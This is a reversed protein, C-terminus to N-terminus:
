TFHKLEEVGAKITNVKLNLDNCKQVIREFYDPSCGFKSFNTQVDHTYFILWGGLTNLEDLMSCIKDLPQEKQYLKVAKLNNLDIRGKNIGHDTGRSSEFHKAAIKRMKITQEGFPYSFNQFKYKIGTENLKVTNKHIDNTLFDAKSNQYTRNHSYTHCGLEHGNNLCASLHNKHYLNINTKDTDLFSLAVYFTGRYGYRELVPQANLFASEPVDDFTFSVQKVAPPIKLSRVATKLAIRKRLENIYKNM